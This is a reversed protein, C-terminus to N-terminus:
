PHSSAIEMDLLRMATSRWFTRFFRKPPGSCGERRTPEYMSQDVAPSPADLDMANMSEVKNAAALRCASLLDATMCDLVDGAPDLISALDQKSPRAERQTYFGYGLGADDDLYPHHAIVLLPFDTRANQAPTALM